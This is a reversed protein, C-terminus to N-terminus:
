ARILVNNATAWVIECSTVRAMMRSDTRSILPENLKYASMVICSNRHSSRGDRGRAMIHNIEVRASVLWAGKSRVPSDSNTEPKLMSYAAPENARKKLIASHMFIIMIFATVVIKRSHSCM